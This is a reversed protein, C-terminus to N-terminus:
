GERDESPSKKNQGTRRALDLADMRDAGTRMKTALEPERLATFLRAAVIYSLAAAVHQGEAEWREAAERERHANALKDPRSLVSRRVM